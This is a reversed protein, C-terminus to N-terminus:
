RNIRETCLVWFLGKLFCSLDFGRGSVRQSVRGRLLLPARYGWVATGTGGDRSGGGWGGPRPWSGSGAGADPDQTGPM